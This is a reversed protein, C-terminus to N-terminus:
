RQGDSKKNVRQSNKLLQFARFDFSILLFFKRDRLIFM